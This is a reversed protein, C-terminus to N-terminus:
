DVDQGSHLTLNPVRHLTHGHPARRHDELGASREPGGARQSRPDQDPHTATREGAPLSLQAQQQRSRLPLLSVCVSLNVDAM